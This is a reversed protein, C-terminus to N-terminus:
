ERYKAWTEEIWKVPRVAKFFDPSHWGQIAVDPNPNGHFIVAKTGTPPLKTDLFYGLPFPRMCSKRFSICWGEPWYQLLGKRHMERSLYAQENRVEKRVQDGHELFYELIDPYKGIEFRFISSNGINKGPLNWDQIIRFAGDLEFFCDLNDWILVDLDIFLAQGVLDDLREQFVTLKRWGREPLRADLNMEPLPRVEIRSDLGEANETFCVFRHPITLNKRVMAALLNVYEPSFKTGWKMCIVNNTISSM